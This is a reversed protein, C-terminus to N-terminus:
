KVHGWATRHYISMVYGSSIGYKEAIEGYTKGAERDARIARVKDENLKMVGRERLAARVREARERKAKLAAMLTEENVDNM